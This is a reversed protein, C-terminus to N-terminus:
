DVIHINHKGLAKLLHHMFLQFEDESFFGRAIGSQNTIIIIKYELKSITQLGELVGDLFKFDKIKYTYGHDENIVGDRDLFIAKSM